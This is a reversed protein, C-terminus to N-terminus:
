IDHVYPRLVFRLSLLDLTTFVSCNSSFSFCFSLLDSLFEHNAVAGDLTCEEANLARVLVEDRSVPLSKNM